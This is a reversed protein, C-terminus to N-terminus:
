FEVVKYERLEFERLKEANLDNELSYKVNNLIDFM